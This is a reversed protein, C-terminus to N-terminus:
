GPSCVTDNSSVAVTAEVNPTLTLSQNTTDCSEIGTSVGPCDQLVLVDQDLEPLTETDLQLPSYPPASFSVDSDSSYETENGDNEDIEDNTCWLLGLDCTLDYSNFDPDVEDNHDNPPM